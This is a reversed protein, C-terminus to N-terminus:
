TPIRARAEVSDVDDVEVIGVVVDVVHPIVGVRCELLKAGM